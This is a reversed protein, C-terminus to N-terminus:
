EGVGQHCEGTEDLIVIIQGGKARRDKLRWSVRWAKRGQYEIEQVAEPHTLDHLSTDTKQKTLYDSALRVAADTNIKQTSAGSGLAQRDQKPIAYFACGEPREIAIFWDCCTKWFLVSKDKQVLVGSQWWVNKGVPLQVDCPVLKPLAKLLSESTFHDKMEGPHPHVAIVLVEDPKPLGTLVEPEAAIANSVCLILLMSIPRIM